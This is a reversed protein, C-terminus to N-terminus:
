MEEVMKSVVDIAEDLSLKEGEAFVSEFAEDGLLQRTHVEAGDYFRQLLPDIAPTTESQSNSLTGLLRVSFEPTKRYILNLVWLLLSAKFFLNLDEVIVFSERYNRRFEDMRGESYSINGLIALRRMISSIDGLTRATVLAEELYIRALQTDRQELALAGLYESMTAKTNIEGLLDYRQQVEILASRAKEYDGDLWALKAFVFGSMNSNAGMQKFLMNAEESYQRAEDVHNLRFSELASRLLAEALNLREGAKRALRLDIVAKEDLTM